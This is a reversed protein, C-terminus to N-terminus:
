IFEARRLELGNLLDDSERDKGNEGHKIEAFFYFPIVGRAKGADSQRHKKNEVLPLPALAFILADATRAAM